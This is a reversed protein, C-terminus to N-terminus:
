KRVIEFVQMKWYLPCMQHQIEFIMEFVLSSTKKPTWRVGVFKLKLSSWIPFYKEVMAHLFHHFISFLFPKKYLESCGTYAYMCSITVILGPPDLTHLLRWKSAKCWVNCTLFYFCTEANRVGGGSCGCIRFLRYINIYM